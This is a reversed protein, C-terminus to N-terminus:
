IVLFRVSVFASTVKLTVARAMTDISTLMIGLGSPDGAETKKQRNREALECAM